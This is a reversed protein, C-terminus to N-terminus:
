LRHSTDTQNQCKRNSQIKNHWKAPKEQPKAGGEMSRTTATTRRISTTPNKEQTRFQVRSPPELARASPPRLALELRWKKRTRAGRTLCEGVIALDDLEGHNKASNTSPRVDCHVVEPTLPPLQFTSKTHKAEAIQQKIIKAKEQLTSLNLTPVREKCRNCDPQM